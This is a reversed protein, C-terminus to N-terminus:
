YHQWALITAVGFLGSLVDKRESIWAVSEVRLPHFSWIAVVALSRLKNGSARFLFLLLLAATLAQILTSMLHHGGANMGFFQCDLMHSLRAMPHWYTDVSGFATRFGDLTLGQKIQPNATVYQPDDLNVFQYRLTRGYLVFVSLAALFCCTRLSADKYLRGNPTRVARRSAAGGARLGRKM